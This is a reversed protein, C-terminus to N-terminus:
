RAARKQAGFRREAPAGPRLALPTRRDDDDHDVDQHEDHEQHHEDDQHEDDIPDTPDHHM